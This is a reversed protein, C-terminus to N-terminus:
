KKKAPLLHADTHWAEWGARLNRLQSKLNAGEEELASAPRAPKGTPGYGQQEFAEAFRRWCRSECTRGM